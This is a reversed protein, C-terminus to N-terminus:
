YVGIFSLTPAVRADLIRIRIKNTHVPVLPVIRKYGIVTGEYVTQFCDDLAAEIRFKEVRQSFLINEKLIIHRIIQKEKWTINIVPVTMEDETMYFSQYDDSRVSEINYEKMGADASLEASELLNTKFAQNLYLGIEQLREVDNDHFLGEKTPPINM